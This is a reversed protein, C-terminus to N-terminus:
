ARPPMDEPVTEGRPELPDLRDNKSEGFTKGQHGKKKPGAAGAPDRRSAWSLAQQIRDPTKGPELLDQGQPPLAGLVAQSALQSAAGTLGSGSSGGANGSSTM